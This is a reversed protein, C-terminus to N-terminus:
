EALPRTKWLMRFGRPLDLHQGRVVFSGVGPLDTIWISETTTKIEKGGDPLDRTQTRSTRINREVGAAGDFDQLDAYFRQRAGGSEIETFELGVIFYGGLDEYRELRRIRGTVTAGGPVVVKGRYSVNAAVTGEILSGVAAKDTIATALRMAVVLGPAVPQGAEPPAAVPGRPGGAQPSSGADFTVTSQAAFSRCHTLETRNLSEEGTFKVMRAEGSQPLLVDEAGVRTRAYHIVTTSESIPLNPPIQDAQIELRLVDFSEPDAWFSGKLGVTGSGEPIHITFGSLMVPLEFDYRAQRRGGLNAEGRYQYTAGGGLLVSKLYLAFFGDAMMGSSSFAAPHQNTFQRAGPSAFLERTGEYLVELRVTDLPRMKGGAPKYWRQVAQLCSCNPLRALEQATHRKIRSILLVGPALEQPRAVSSSLAAVAALALKVWHGSAM